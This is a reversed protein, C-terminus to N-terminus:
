YRLFLKSLLYPLDRVHKVLMGARTVHGLVPIRCEQGDTGDNILQLPVPWFKADYRIAFDILHVLIRIGSCYSIEEVDFALHLSDGQLAAPVSTRDAVKARFCRDFENALKQRKGIDTEIVDVLFYFM